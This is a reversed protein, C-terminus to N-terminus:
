IQTYLHAADPGAIRSLTNSIPCFIGTFNSLALYKQMSKPLPVSYKIESLNPM